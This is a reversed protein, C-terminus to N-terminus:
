GWHQASLLAQGATVGFTSKLTRALHASDSFGAAHAATTVDCGAALEAAALRLRRWLIYRKYPLGLQDAFLHRFRDPSLGAKAAAHHLPVPGSRLVGEIFHLAAEVRRDIQHDTTATSTLMAAWFSPAGPLGIRALSGRSRVNRLLAEVEPDVLRGPEVFLILVEGGPEIRHPTLPDILVCEAEILHDLADNVRVPREGIVAQAAFHRHRAGDGAAGRWVAWRDHLQLEGRWKTGVAGAAGNM